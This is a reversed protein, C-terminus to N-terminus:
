VMGKLRHDMNVLYIQGQLYAAYSSPVQIPSIDKELSLERFDNRRLLLDKKHVECHNNKGRKTTSGPFFSEQIKLQSAIPELFYLGSLTGEM